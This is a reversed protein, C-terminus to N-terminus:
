GPLAYGDLYRITDQPHPGPGCANRTRFINPHVSFLLSPGITRESCPLDLQSQRHFQAGGAAM